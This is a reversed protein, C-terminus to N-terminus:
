PLKGRGPYHISWQARQRRTETAEEIKMRIETVTQGKWSTDSMAVGDGIFVFNEGVVEKNLPRM